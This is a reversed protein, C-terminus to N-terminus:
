PFLALQNPDIANQRTYTNNRALFDVLEPYIVRRNNALSFSDLCDPRVLNGRDDREYKAVLRWFTREVIGLILCVESTCYSPKVPLGAVALMARLQEEALSADM